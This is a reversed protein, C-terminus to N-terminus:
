SLLVGYFENNDFPGKQWISGQDLFLSIQDGKRLAVISQVSLDIILPGNLISFASGIKLHNNLMLHILTNPSNSFGTFSFYYVGSQPATFVGSSLNM